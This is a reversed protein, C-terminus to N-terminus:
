VSRQQIFARMCVYISLVYLCVYICVYSRVQNETRGGIAQRPQHTALLEAAIKM